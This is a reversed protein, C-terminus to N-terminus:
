KSFIGKREAEEITSASIVSIITLKSFDGNIVKEYKVLENKAAFLDTATVTGLRPEKNSGTFYKIKFYKM